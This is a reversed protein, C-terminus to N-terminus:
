GATVLARDIHRVALKRALMALRMMRQFRSVARRLLREYGVSRSFCHKFPTM